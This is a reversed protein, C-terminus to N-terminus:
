RFKRGLSTSEDNKPNKRAIEMAERNESYEDDQSSKKKYMYICSFEMLKKFNYHEALYSMLSIRSDDRYAEVPMPMDCPPVNCQSAFENVIHNM